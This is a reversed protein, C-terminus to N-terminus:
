GGPAAPKLECTGSVCAVPPPGVCKKLPCGEAGMAACQAEARADWATAVAIQSCSQCCAGEAVYRAYHVVCEADRLCRRDPEDFDVTDPCGQGKPVCTKESCAEFGEIENVKSLPVHTERIRGDVCVIATAHGGATPPAPCAQGKPVCTNGGCETFEEVEDVKDLPVHGERVRGDICLSLTAHGKPPCAAALSAILLLPAAAFALRKM